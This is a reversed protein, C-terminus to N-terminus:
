ELVNFGQAEVANKLTDFSVDKTLSVVANKNELSVIVNEVGDIAMLCKEVASTCHSCAMGEINLTKEM